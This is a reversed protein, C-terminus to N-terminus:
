THVEAKLDTLLKRGDLDCLTGFWGSGFFREISHTERRLELNDPHKKQRRVSKRYDDVAQLIIADALTRWGDNIFYSEM